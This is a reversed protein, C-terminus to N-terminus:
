AEQVQDAFHEEIADVGDYHSLWDLAEDASLLTVQDGPGTSDGSSGSYISNGGGEGHMFWAGKKSLYLTEECYNFDNHGYGNNWNWWGTATDTNYLKGDIVKKM